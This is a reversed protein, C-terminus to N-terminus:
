GEQEPFRGDRTVEIRAQPTLDLGTGLTGEAAVEAARGASRDIGIANDEYTLRLSASSVVPHWKGLEAMPDITCDIRIVAENDANVLGELYEAPIEAELSLPPPGSSSWAPAGTEYTAELDELDIQGGTALGITWLAATGESTATEITLVAGTITVNAPLPSANFPIFGRFTHAPMGREIGATAQASPIHGTVAGGTEKELYGARDATPTLEVIPM